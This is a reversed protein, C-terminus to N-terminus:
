PFSGRVPGPLPNGKRAPGDELRWKRVLLLMVVPVAFMLVFSRFVPLTLAPFAWAAVYALLATSVWSTMIFLITTAVEMLILVVMFGEEKYFPTPPEPPAFPDGVDDGEPATFVFIGLVLIQILINLVLLGGFRTADRRSLRTCLGM